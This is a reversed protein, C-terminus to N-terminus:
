IDGKAFRKLFLGALRLMDDFESIKGVSAPSHINRVPCALAGTKVGARSRQVARGDTGGAVRRKTQWPIGNEEARSTLIAFLERDYLTGRDMFSIVVGDGARCIRKEEGVDPSDTATTGELVLCVDPAVAYAMVAAGRTGVEEQATFAFTVDCPLDRELLRLMVACGVRDDIAKAKLYGDGFVFVSDSFTCCTGLEVRKEADERNQCGIDILLEDEKPCASEERKDVLHYPKCGIVGPIRERGIYVRKGPLVRRDIGGVSAFRLYGEETVGTIIFGVEDMHACLLLKQAPQVAGKKHVIVNGMVDTDVADALPLTRQLIYDRVEAEAGSVGSLACLTKLTELM